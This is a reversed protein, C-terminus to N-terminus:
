VEIRTVRAQTHVFSQKTHSLTRFRAGSHPADFYTLFVHKQPDRLIDRKTPTTGHGWFILGLAVLIKQQMLCTNICLFMLQINNCLMKSM